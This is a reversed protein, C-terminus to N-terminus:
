KKIIHLWVEGNMLLYVENLGSREMRRLAVVYAEDPSYAVKVLNVIVCDGRAQKAAKRLLTDLTNLNGSTTKLEIRRDGCVIDPTKVGEIQSEALVVIQEEFNECLWELLMKEESNLQALPEFVVKAKKM